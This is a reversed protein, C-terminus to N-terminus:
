VPLSRFPIFCYRSHAVINNEKGADSLNEINLIEPFSKFVDVWAAFPTSQNSIGRLRLIRVGDKGIYGVFEEALRTKGVGAEGEIWIVPNSLRM